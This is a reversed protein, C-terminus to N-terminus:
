VKKNRDETENFSDCIANLADCIIIAADKSFTECINIKKQTDVVTADFCCHGSESGDVTVYRM